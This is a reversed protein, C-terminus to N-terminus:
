MSPKKKSQKAIKEHAEDIYKNDIMLIADIFIHLEIPCDYLELYDKIAKIEIPMPVGNEYRRSRAITNYADM